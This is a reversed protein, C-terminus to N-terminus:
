MAQGVTGIYFIEGKPNTYWGSKIFLMHNVQPANTPNNQLGDGMRRTKRRTPPQLITRRAPRRREANRPRGLKDYREPFRLLTQAADHVDRRPPIGISRTDRKHRNSPRGHTFPSIRVGPRPTRHHRRRRKRRGRFRHLLLVRVAM